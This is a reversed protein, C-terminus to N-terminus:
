SLSADPYDFVSLMEPIQDRIIPIYISRYTYTKSTLDGRFISLLGQRGEGARAVPSGDVPYLNLSGSVALMADRIAEAELRRVYM